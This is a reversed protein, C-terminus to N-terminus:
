MGSEFNKGVAREWAEKLIRRKKARQAKAKQGEKRGKSEDERRYYEMNKDVRNRAKEYLQRRGKQALWCQTIQAGILARIESIRENKKKMMERKEEGKRRRTMTRIKRSTTMHLIEIEPARVLPPAHPKIRHM